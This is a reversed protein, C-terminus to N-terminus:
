SCPSRTQFTAGLFVADQRFGAADYLARAACNGAAVLLTVSRYAESALRACSEELLARGLHRGRYAPDVALQVIHAVGPAIDTILALGCIGETDRLVATAAPHITGCGPHNVVNAVYREWEAQEHHPALLVSAAPDYARRLLAAASAIDSDHWAEFSLHPGPAVWSRDLTRSLYFHTEVHFSRARLSRELAVAGDFVLLRVMGVGLTASAELIGDVLLDTTCADDSVIGGVDLRGDEVLYFALGRIRGGPDCAVLGPVDGSTRAQEVQSWISTFDWQLHRLARAHEQAYVAAVAAPPVHRWDQLNM